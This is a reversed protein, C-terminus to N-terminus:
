EGHEAEWIEGLLKAINEAMECNNCHCFHDEIKWSLIGNDCRPCTMESKEFDINKFNM